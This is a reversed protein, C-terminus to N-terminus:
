TIMILSYNRKQQPIKIYAVKFQIVINKNNQVFLIIYLLLFEFLLSRKLHNGSLKRERNDSIVKLEETMASVEIKQQHEEKKQETTTNKM